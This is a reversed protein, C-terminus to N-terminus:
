DLSMGCCLELYLLVLGPVFCRSIKIMPTSRGSGYRLEADNMWFGSAEQVIKSYLRVEPETEEDDPDDYKNYTAKVWEPRVGGFRRIASFAIDPGNTLNTNLVINVRDETLLVHDPIEGGYSMEKGTFFGKMALKALRTLEAICFNRDIQESPEHDKEFVPEDENWFHLYGGGKKPHPAGDPVKDFFESKPADSQSALESM